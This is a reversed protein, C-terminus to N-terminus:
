GSANSCARRSPSFTSINLTRGTEGMPMAEIMRLTFDHQICFAVMDDIEDDNVGAMVVM